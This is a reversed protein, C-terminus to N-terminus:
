KTGVTKFGFLIMPEEYDYFSIYVIAEMEKGDLSRYKLLYKDLMASGLFGNESKYPCCSGLREYSIPKNQSDRLLDLYARQNDPGGNPGTGVKIPNDSTFGYKENPATKRLWLIPNIQRTSTDNCSEIKKNAYTSGLQKAKQFDLCASDKKGLMEFLLGRNYYAEHYNPDLIISYSYDSKAGEYDTLHRKAIGRNLYGKKYEADLKIVQEFDLLAEEYRNLKSKAIGRNYWAYYNEPQLEITKSFLIIADKFKGQSAKENAEKYLAVPDQGYALTLILFQGFLFLVKIMNLNKITEALM